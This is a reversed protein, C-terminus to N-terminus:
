WGYSTVLNNVQTAQANGNSSLINARLTQVTTASSTYGRFLMSMSYGSALDNIRTTTPEGVDTCDHLLGAPIWGRSETGNFTYPVSDDRRQNKLEGCLRRRPVRRCGM